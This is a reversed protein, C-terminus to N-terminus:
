QRLLGAVFFGDTGATAPTLRLGPGFTSAFRAMDPLGAAEALAEPAIAMFDV